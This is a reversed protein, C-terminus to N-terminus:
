RSSGSQWTAVANATTAVAIAVGVAISFWDLARATRTQAVALHMWPGVVLGLPACALAGLLAVVHDLRHRFALALGALGFVLAVRSAAAVRPRGTKSMMDTVPFLQLPFTLLVVLVYVARVAGGPWFGPPLSESVVVDVRDGFALYCVAGFCCYAVAVAAVTGVVVRTLKHRHKPSAAACVPIVIVATGEFAFVTIGAFTLTSGLPAFAYTVDDRPGEDALMKLAYAAITLLAAAVLANGLSNLVHLRQLRRTLSLPAEAVAMGLILAGMSPARRPGLAAALVSRANEAVFIFYTVCDGCQMAVVCFRVLAECRAGAFTRALGQIGQAREALGEREAAYRWCDVLRSIGLAFLLNAVLICGLSGSIGADAFGRPVYLAAPGVMCRVLAIVARSMSGGAVEDGEEALSTTEDAAECVDGDGAVLPNEAEQLTMAHEMPRSARWLTTSPDEGVAALSFRTQEVATGM